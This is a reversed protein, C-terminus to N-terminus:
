LSSVDKKLWTMDKETLELDEVQRSQGERLAQLETLIQAIIQEMNPWRGIKCTISGLLRPEVANSHQNEVLNYKSIIVMYSKTPHRRHVKHLMIM